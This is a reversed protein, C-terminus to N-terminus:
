KGMLKKGGKVANSAGQNVTAQSRSSLNDVTQQANRGADIGATMLLKSFYLPIGIYGLMAIISLIAAPTNLQMGLISYGDFISELLINDIWRAIAWMGPWLLIAMLFFALMIVPKPSYLTVLM